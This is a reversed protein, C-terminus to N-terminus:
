LLGVKKRIVLVTDCVPLIKFCVYVMMIEDQRDNILLPPWPEEISFRHITKTFGLVFCHVILPDM